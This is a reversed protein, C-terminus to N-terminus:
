LYAKPEISYFTRQRLKDKVYKASAVGISAYPISGTTSTM